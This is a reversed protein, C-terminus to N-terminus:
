SPSINKEREEMMRLALSILKNKLTIYDGRIYCGSANPHGGGGMEAALRSVDLDGRSRLGARMGGERIEHCLISMEVGAISRMEGVLGEPENEEGVSRYMEQTIEGWVLRGQCQYELNELVRGKVWISAPSKNEFLSEAIASPEAGAKVLEAAVLFTLSRTNSYRFGGTDSLLSLYMCTAMDKTIPKKMATIIHFLQEGVSSAIPDIYNIDGFEENSKHHDINILLGCPKINEIARDPAGCDLFFCVDSKFDKDFSNTIERIGPVFHFYDLVPGANYLRVTKGLEKLFFYLALQSGICDGDPRVHGCVLFSTKEQIIAGIKRIVAGFEADYLRPYDNYGESSM